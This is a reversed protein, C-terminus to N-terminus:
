LTIWSSGNWKFMKFNQKKDTIRLCFTVKPLVASSIYVSGANITGLADNGVLLGLSDWVAGAAEASDPLLADPPASAPPNQPLGFRLPSSLTSSKIQESNEFTGDGNEDVRVSYSSDTFAVQVSADHRLATMRVSSIEKLITYAQTELRTHASFASFRNVTITGLIAAIAIVIILEFLTFGKESQM